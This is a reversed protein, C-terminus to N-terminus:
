AVFVQNELTLKGNKNKLQEIKMEKRNIKIETEKLTANQDEIMM